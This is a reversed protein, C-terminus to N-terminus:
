NEKDDQNNRELERKEKKIAKLRKKGWRKLKKFYDKINREYAFLPKSCKKIIEDKIRIVDKHDWLIPGDNGFKIIRRALSRYPRSYIKGAKFVLEKSSEKMEIIKAQCNGEDFFNDIEEIIKRSQHLLELDEKKWLFRNQYRYGIIGGLLTCLAGLAILLIERSLIVNLASIFIEKM